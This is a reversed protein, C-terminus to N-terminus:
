VDVPPARVQETMAVYVNRAEIAGDILMLGDVGIPTPLLRVSVSVSLGFKAVNGIAADQVCCFPATM